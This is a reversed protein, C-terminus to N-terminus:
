KRGWLEDFDFHNALAQHVTIMEESFGQVTNDYLTVYASLRLRGYAFEIGDDTPRWVGSTRAGRESAQLKEEILGWHALKALERSQQLEIPAEEHLNVWRRQSGSQKVLWILDRAMASNLKRRYSRALQGCCPCDVGEELNAMVWARAEELTM